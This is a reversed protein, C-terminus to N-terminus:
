KESSIFSVCGTLPQVQIGLRERRLGMSKGSPERLEWRINLNKGQWAAAKRLEQGARAKERAM